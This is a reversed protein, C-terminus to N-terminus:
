CSDCANFEKIEERERIQRGTASCISSNAGTIVAFNGELKGDLIEQGRIHNQNQYRM